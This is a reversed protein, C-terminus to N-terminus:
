KKDRLALIPCPGKKDGKHITPLKYNSIDANNLKALISWISQDHRHERFGDLNPSKSPTDDALDFHNEFVGLWEKILNKTVATKRLFFATARIQNSDTIDRRNRVNFYDLLDGKNWHKEINPIAFGLIGSKSVKVNNILGQMEQKRAPNIHCGIDTYLLIDGDQMKDMVQKIVASKWCWYGFGRSGHVLKDQFKNMFNPSLNREDMIYIEDFAGSVVAQQLLREKSETMRSDGFSVLCAKNGEDNISTKVCINDMPIYQYPLPPSFTKQERLDNEIGRSIKASAKKFPVFLYIFKVIQKRM